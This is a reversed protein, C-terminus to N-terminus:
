PILIQKMIFDALKTASEEIYEKDTELILAPSSPSEYVASIGTFEPIEGAIAKKYLGKPDREICCDIPANVFVEAFSGEGIIARAMSRDSTSPSILASIVVVGTDNFQKCIESVRRINERRDEPSFGLDANIGSRLVDGDLVHVQINNEFLLSEVAKAITSKGAGSLGTLWVTVAKHGNKVEKKIRNLVGEREMNTPPM